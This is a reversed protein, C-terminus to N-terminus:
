ARDIVDGHKHRHGLVVNVHTAMGSFLVSRWTEMPYDTNNILFPM